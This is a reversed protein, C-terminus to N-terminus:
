AVEGKREMQFEMLERHQIVWDRGVKQGLRGLRCHLAVTTADIGLLDAASATDYLAERNSESADLAVADSDERTRSGTVAQVGAALQSRISVLRGSLPSGGQRKATAEVYSILQCLYEADEPPIIVGIVARIEDYSM